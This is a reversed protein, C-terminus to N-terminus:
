IFVSQHSARETFRYVTVGPLYIVSHFTISVLLIITDSTPVLEVASAAVVSGRTLSRSSGCGFTMRDIVDRREGINSVDNTTSLHQFIPYCVHACLARTIKVM